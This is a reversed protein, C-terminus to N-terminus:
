FDSLWETTQVANKATQAQFKKDPFTMLFFLQSNKKKHLVEIYVLLVSHLASFHM